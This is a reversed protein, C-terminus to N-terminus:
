FLRGPVHEGNYKITLMHRGAEAPRIHLTYTGDHHDYLECFAQKTPGMCHVSLEGLFLILIFLADKFYFFQLNKAIFQEGPGARRTDIFSEMKKGIVGNKLDDTAVVVKSADSAASVNLKYPCGKVIDGSWKVMLQYAGHQAATYTAKYVNSGLHQLSVPIDAKIGSIHVEPEGPGAESGDIIFEAEERVKAETLGRGRLRVLSADIPIAAPEAWGPLPSHPIPQEHWWFHV